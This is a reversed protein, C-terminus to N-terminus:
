LIGTWVSDQVNSDGGYRTLINKVELPPSLGFKHAREWRQLRPLGVTPGYKTCLDFNQLIKAEREDPPDPVKQPPKSATLTPVEVVEEAFLSSRAKATRARPEFAEPKTVEQFDVDPSLYTNELTIHEKHKPLPKDPTEHDEAGAHKRERGTRKSVSECNALFNSITSQKRKSPPM